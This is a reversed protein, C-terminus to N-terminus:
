DEEIPLHLWLANPWFPSNGPVVLRDRYYHQDLALMGKSESWVASRVIAAFQKEHVAREIDKLLIMAENKPGRFVDILPGTHVCTAKGMRLTLNSYNPVLVDGDIGAIDRELSRGMEWDDKSPVAPMPSTWLILYQVLCWLYIAAAFTHRRDMPWRPFVSYAQSLSLGFLISLIAYAPMLTNGAGGAHFRSMWSGAIFGVVAAMYFIVKHDRERFVRLLVYVVSFLCAIGFAKGLDNVWFGVVYKEAIEHESALRFIYYWYWGKHFHEFIFHSAVLLVAATLILHVSGKKKLYVNAVLVPLLVVLSTQKTLYGICVLVGAVIQSARSEGFRMLWIVSLLLLMFFSDVRAIDFWHETLTYTAAYLGAAIVGHVIDGTERKVIMIIFAFVGLCSLLSVLRLPLYGEGVVLSLMASVYYYFPTYLSPTFEVSPSVYLCEASLVRHVHDVMAGEQIELAYPYGIRLLAVVVFVLVYATGAAFTAFKLISVIRAAGTRAKM